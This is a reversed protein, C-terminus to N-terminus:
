SISPVCLSRSGVKAIIYVACMIIQDLHRDRLLETNQTVVHEVCTWMQRHLDEDTIDLRECLDKLRVHALHYM